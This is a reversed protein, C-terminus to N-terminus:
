LKAIVLPATQFYSNPIYTTTKEDSVCIHLLGLQEVTLMKPPDGPMIVTQGKRLIGAARLTSGSLFCIIYPQLAYGIGISFGGLISTIATEGFLHSILFVVVVALFSFQALQSEYAGINFYSRLCWFMGSALVRAVIFAGLCIFIDDLSLWVSTLLLEFTEYMIQLLNQM